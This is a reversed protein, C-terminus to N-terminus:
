GPRYGRRQAPMPLEPAEDELGEQGLETGPDEDPPTPPPSALAWVPMGAPLPPLRPEGQAVPLDGALRHALAIARAATGIAQPVLEARLAPNTAAELAREALAKAAVAMATRPNDM